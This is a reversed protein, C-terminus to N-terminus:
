GEGERLSAIMIGGEALRAVEDGSVTPRPRGPCRRHERNSWACRRAVIGQLQAPASLEADDTSSRGASPRSAPSSSSRPHCVQDQGVIQAGCPVLRGQKVCPSAQQAARKDRIPGVIGSRAPGLLVGRVPPSRDCCRRLAQQSFGTSLCAVDLDDTERPLHHAAQRDVSRAPRQACGDDPGVLAGLRLGVEEFLSDAGVAHVRDRAVSCARVICGGLDQPQPIVLGVQMGPRM